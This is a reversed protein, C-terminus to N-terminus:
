KPSVIIEKIIPRNTPQPTTSTSSIDVLVLLKSLRGDVVMDGDGFVVGVIGDRM